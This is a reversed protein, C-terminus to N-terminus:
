NPISEFLNSSLCDFNFINIKKDADVHFNSPLKSIILLDVTTGM